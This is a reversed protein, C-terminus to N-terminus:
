TVIKLISNFANLADAMLVRETEEKNFMKYVAHVAAESGAGQGTYRQLSGTVNLVGIKLLKTVINGIIHRLIEEIGLRLGSQKYLPILKYALFADLQKGAKYLYLRKTLGAITKGLHEGSKNFNRSVLIRRWGEADLVSPGTSCRTKKM